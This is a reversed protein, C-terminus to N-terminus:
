TPWPRSLSPDDQPPPTRTIETPNRVPYHCSVFHQAETDDTLAPSVSLCKEQAVPCRTHFRCGSPVNLPSPPDGRLVIRQRKRERAPDPIPVASLLSHTYPHLPGAFLRGTDAVEVLKGLYMVAVRDAMERVVSLDHTVFVYSIDRERQLRQLLNIIQAQVSVDLSSVPEDLVLLKPGLALARAIGIRQRQGGSFERPRRRQDSGDLGVSELLRSVEASLKRRDHRSIVHHTILPEAVIGGVRMHPDLSSYPDQFVVQIHRRLERWRAPPLTWIDVGEFYVNGATPKHLGLMLWALTSKGSGTEGVLGLTERRRVVVDVDDVAVVRSPPGGFGLDAQFVKRVGRVELLADDESM